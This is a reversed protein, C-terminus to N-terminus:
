AKSSDPRPPARILFQLPDPRGTWFCEPNRQAASRSAVSQRVEQKRSAPGAGIISSISAAGEPPMHAMLDDLPVPGDKADVRCLLALAPSLYVTRTVLDLDFIGIGTDEGALVLRQEAASARASTVRLRARLTALPLGLIAYILL